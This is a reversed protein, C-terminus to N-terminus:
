ADLTRTNAPSGQASENFFSPAVELAELEIPQTPLEVRVTLPKGSGVIVNSLLVPRYGLAGARLTYAGPPIGRIAFQGQGDSIGTLNTDLIEVLASPVPEGTVGVVRGLITGQPVEQAVSRDAFVGASLLAALFLIRRKM